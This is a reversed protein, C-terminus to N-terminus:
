ATRGRAHRTGPGFIGPYQARVHARNAEAYAAEDSMGRVKALRYSDWWQDFERHRAAHEWQDHRYNVPGGAPHPWERARDRSRGRARRSRLLKM